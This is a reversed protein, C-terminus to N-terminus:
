TTIFFYSGSYKTESYMFLIIINQEVCMNECFLDSILRAKDDIIQIAGEPCNPICEGCGNCKKDDIKIIKRKAM